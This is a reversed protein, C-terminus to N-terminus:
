PAPAGAIVRPLEATGGVQEMTHDGVAVRSPIVPLLFLALCWVYRQQTAAPQLLPLLTLVARAQATPLESFGDRLGIM